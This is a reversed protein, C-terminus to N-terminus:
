TSVRSRLTVSIGKCTKM